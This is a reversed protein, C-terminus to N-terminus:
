PSIPPANDSISTQEGCTSAAPSNQNGPTYYAVGWTWTGAGRATPDSTNAMGNADLPIQGSDYKANGTCDGGQYLKFDVTGSAPNDGSTVQAFDTLFAFQNTPLSSDHKSVVSTEGADGCSGSAPSNNGDGSFSAIWEYSGAIQPAAGNPTFSVPGYTTNANIGPVTTSYVSTKCSTDPSGDPNPAYATFTISGTGTPSVLGSITASDSISEGITASTASTTISPTGTNPFSICNAGQSTDFANTQISNDGNQDVTIEKAGNVLQLKNGTGGGHVDYFNVCVTTIDSRKAYTHSYGQFDGHKLSPDYGWSGWPHGSCQITGDACTAMSSLPGNGPATATLPERGCGGKWTLYSNPDPPSPDVFQQAPYGPYGEPINGVDAPHVMEDIQNLPDGKPISSIGVGASPAPPTVNGGGGNALGTISDTYQLTNGTGAVETIAFTGNYGSPGVGSVKITDGVALTSFGGTNKATLTVTSGSETAGNPKGAIAINPPTKGTVTYGPETPDNWIIGVGAGARDTNCDSNHSYWNWQGRVYVTWTGDANQVLDGKITGLIPNGADGFASAVFAALMAVLAVAVVALRRWHRGLLNSTTYERKM